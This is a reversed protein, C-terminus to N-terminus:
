ASPPPNTNPKTTPNVALQDRAKRGIVGLHTDQFSTPHKLGYGLARDGGVHSLWVAGLMTVLDSGALLGWGLLIAPGVLVHGVNYFFAGVRPNALYGAASLDPVLWLLLFLWWPYGTDRYILLALVFLALGEVRQFGIVGV